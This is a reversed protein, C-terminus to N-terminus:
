GIAGISILGYVTKARMDFSQRTEPIEFAQGLAKSTFYLKYSINFNIYGGARREFLYTHFTMFSFNRKM